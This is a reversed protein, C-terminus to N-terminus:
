RGVVADSLKLRVTVFVEVESIRVTTVDVISVKISIQNPENRRM